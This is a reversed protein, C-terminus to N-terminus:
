GTIPYMDLIVNALKVTRAEIQAITWSDPDVLDKNLYLGNKYGVAADSVKDKLNQKKDFSFNSLEGNYATLTLNGIRHVHTELYGKALIKDGEAIMDVWCDPVNEGQPFIHEISWLYKKGRLQWLDKSTERTMYRQEIACLLFRCLATNEEYLNGSLAKRLTDEDTSVDQLAEVILAVVQESSYSLQDSVNNSLLKEAIGMFIRTLDRTAPKDTANRRVFFAILSKTVLELHSYDLKLEERKAFLLMMLLYSPVGQVRALDQLLYSLKPQEPVDKNSIIQSYWESHRIMKTLFIKADHAILKEYVQMLNSKTAVSVNVIEKLTPKFANYYHRFFREQVAYDDGLAELVKKWDDYDQDISGKESVELKSLLKNKILDIATLPVGRNNLSEFLTYADSHSSVEIKVLTATNIKEILGDLAVLRADISDVENLFEEVRLHFHRYARMIRRNGMHAIYDADSFLGAEKLVYRYDQQNNNQVQPVLRSQNTVGKLILKNKLNLRAGILDDTTKFDPNCYHAYVAAMFISLTTMRQQGDVLELSRVELSDKTQNICIISGLFYNKDNEVLDEFLTDWQWKGWTYERQYRPITYIIKEDVSLLASVAYNKVSDIM